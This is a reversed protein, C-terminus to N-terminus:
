NEAMLRATPKHWAPDVMLPEGGAVRIREDIGLTVFRM